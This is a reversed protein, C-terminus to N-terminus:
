EKVEQKVEETGRVAAQLREIARATVTVAQTKAAELLEDAIRKADLQMDRFAQAEQETAIRALGQVIFRAAIGRAVEALVGAKGGNGTEHSVIIPFPESIAQEQQRVKGYFMSLDM